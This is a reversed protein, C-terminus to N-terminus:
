GPMQPAHPPQVVDNSVRDLVGILEAVCAAVDRGATDLVVRPREWAHYERTRVDDWTPLVLGPIDSARQEIRRRHEAPDSCVVEVDVMRAGGAAAVARWADRTLGLPNVQDAVVPRGLALNDAALAYAATYGEAVVGDPLTGCERLAQEVTDVRLYTACLHRAAARALTTKGAGPLGAFVVLLGPM